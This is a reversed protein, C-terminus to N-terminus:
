SEPMGRKILLAKSKGIQKAKCMLLLTSNQSLSILMDIGGISKNSTM